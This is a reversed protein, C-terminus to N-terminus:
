FHVTLYYDIGAKINHGKNISKSPFTENSFAVSDAPRLYSINQHGNSVTTSNRYSYNGYVNVKSNQFSLSANGNYNNRTGATAEVAGILGLKKNKKLVINIIGSEGEADYKASPNTIVEISEIASAPLSQLIQTVNGGAILSPKGDILVNVNSSGRLNVNGTADVSVTPINQLLDTASGGKSVLSQEVSFKKKDLGIQTHNSPGIITVESLLNGKGPNILINGFNVTRDVSSIVVSDKVVSQYGIYSVKCKFLGDPLQDLIFLGTTDTQISKIITSTMKDLLVVSAFPISELTIADKVFGKIKRDSQASSSFVIGLVFLVILSSKIKHLNM